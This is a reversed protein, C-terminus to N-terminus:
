DREWRAVPQVLQPETALRPALSAGSRFAALFAAVRALDGESATVGAAALAARVTETAQDAM